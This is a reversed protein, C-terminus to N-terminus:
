GLVALRRAKGKFTSKKMFSIPIMQMAKKRNLAKRCVPCNGVGKESNKEGAELAQTLCEHCYLHGCTTVTANKYAEMCIICTRKGIKLVGIAAQQTALLQQQQNQLLEEDASPGENTLDLEEINEKEESSDEDKIRDESKVKRRKSTQVHHAPDTSTM